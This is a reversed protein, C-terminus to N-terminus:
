AFDQEQAVGADPMWGQKTMAERIARVELLVSHNGILTSLAASIKALAYAKQANLAVDKSRGKFIRAALARLM